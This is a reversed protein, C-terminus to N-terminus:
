GQVVGLDLTKRLCVQVVRWCSKEERARQEKWFFLSVMVSLLLNISLLHRPFVVFGEEVYL